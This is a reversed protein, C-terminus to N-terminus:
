YNELFWKYTTHIGEELSVQSTWGLSNLVSIDLLKQPTGDPKSRDYIIDGNFGVVQKVLLALEAISLDKGTGINVLLKKLDLKAAADTEMLFVCARALDEVHLFERKPSGTGWVTVFDLNKEKAEHFKRILAPLVHSTEYDFNDNPGYLNTPMVPIFHTKYQLNYAWCMEIGAIKAIAYPSNTSELPGTMLYEERIPQDCERPYICSSGLFLLKQVGHLYSQHILSNQIMLNQYIFDAPYTSNAMIGGVKAAALFVREPKNKEFYLNVANQDMLDLEAHAPALINAYGQDKLCRIIASGVLGRGGAVFIKKSTTEMPNSM